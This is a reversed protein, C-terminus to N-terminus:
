KFIGVRIVTLAFRRAAGIIDNENEVIYTDKIIHNNGEILFTVNHKEKGDTNTGHPFVKFRSYHTAHFTITPNNVSQSLLSIYPNNLM